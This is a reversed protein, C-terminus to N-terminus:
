GLAAVAQTAIGTMETRTAPWGKTRPQRTLLVVLFRKEPGVAGASHLYYQGSFCCMWGQKAVAGSGDGRVDSSLLGFAQDFRDKATSPAAALDSILLERDDAPMDDLVYRWLAAYDAATVEVEGWRGTRRPAATGELGLRDSVRAVAGAGDFREWLANMASDDSPGLARAFLQRDADTVQLGETRHRDLVDVIVILKALSATYFREHGLGNAALEGTTRDLVAVGLQTASTAREEAANVAAQALGRQVPPPEPTDPPAAPAAEPSPAVSAAAMRPVVPGSDTVLLPGTAALVLLVGIVSWPTSRRRGHRGTM